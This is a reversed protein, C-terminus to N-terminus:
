EGVVREIVYTSFEVLNDYARTLEGSLDVVDKLTCDGGGIKEAVESSIAKPDAM